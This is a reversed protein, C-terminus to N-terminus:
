RLPPLLPSLHVAKSANRSAMYVKAGARCLAIISYKGLGTNGGTVLAIRGAQSPIDAATFPTSCGFM